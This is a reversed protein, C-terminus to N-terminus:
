LSNTTDSSSSSTTTNANTSNAPLQSQIDSTAIPPVSGAPTLTPVSTLPWEVITYYKGTFKNKFTITGSKHKYKIHTRMYNLNNITYDCYTCLLDDNQNFDIIIQSNADMTLITPKIHGMLFQSHQAQQQQKQQQAMMQKQNIKPTAAAVSAAGGGTTPEKKPKPGRKKGNYTTNTAVTPATGTSTTTTTTTTTAVANVQPQTTL